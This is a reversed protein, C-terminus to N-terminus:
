NNKKDYGNIENIKKITIEKAWKNIISIQKLDKPKRIAYKIYNRDNLIKGIVIPINLFPMKHRLFCDVAVENSANVIISTSPFKNLKHLIKLIPFNKVNPADFTLNKIKTVKKKENILDKIIIKNNFIANAIPILMSTEHYIFKTLGNKFQIIAHVLSQPHILIELKESPINFLKQAEILELVKNILTSSDVSIKKGMKWKPHKVAQYPKIKKLQKTTFGLFPGGSATLYVKEIEELNNKELINLISFHESDIPVIKTQFKSALNNILNWGCIISEKNAILIKKSKKIMILTPELGAIGPIASITIHSKKILSKSDLKNLFQTKHNKFKKKTKKFIKYDNILFFVPKYKTIQKSILQFNKNSSFLYPKFYNKKKDFIKLATIGISGTSGLLSFLKPM